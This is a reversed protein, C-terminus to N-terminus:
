ENKAIKKFISVKVYRLVHDHLEYGSQLVSSVINDYIDNSVISVVEHKSPDFLDYEKVNIKKVNYKELINLLLKYFLFYVNDENNAKSLSAEFSDLLPLLDLFINKNAYRTINIIERDTRKKINEVEARARLFLEWNTKVEEELVKVKNSLIDLKEDLEIDNEIIKDNENM